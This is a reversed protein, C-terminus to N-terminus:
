PNVVKCLVIYKQRNETPVIAVLDGRQLSTNLIITGNGSLSVSSSENGISGPDSLNLTAIRSYNDVLIDSILLDDKNLQLEGLKITLPAISIIQGLTVSSTNYQEGQEKMINILGIYPNKIIIMGKM